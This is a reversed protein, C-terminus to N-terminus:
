KKKKALIQNVKQLYQLIELQYRELQEIRKRFERLEMRIKMEITNLLVAHSEALCELKAEVM